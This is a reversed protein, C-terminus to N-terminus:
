ETVQYLLIDIMIKQDAYEVTMQGSHNKVIQNIIQLGILYDIGNEMARPFGNKDWEINGYFLHSVTLTLLNIGLNLKAQITKNQEALNENQDISQIANDMLIGLMFQITENSMQVNNDVNHEFQIAIGKEDAELAKENMIPEIGLIGTHSNLKKSEYKLDDKAYENIVAQVQGARLKNMIEWQKVRLTYNRTQIDYENRVKKAFSDNYASIVAKMDDMRKYHRHLVSHAIVTMFLLLPLVVIGVLSAAPHESSPFVATLIKAMIIVFAPYILNVIFFLTPLKAYNYVPSIKKYLILFIIFVAIGVIYQPLEFATVDQGFFLVGGYVAIEESLFGMSFVYLTSTLAKRMDRTVSFGLAAIMVINAVLNASFSNAFLNVCSIVIIYGFALAVTYFQNKIIPRYRIEFFVTLIVAHVAVFFVDIIIDM